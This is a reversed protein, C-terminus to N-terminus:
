THTSCLGLRSFPEPSSPGDSWDEKRFLPLGDSVLPVVKGSNDAGYYAACVQHQLSLDRRATASLTVFEGAHLAAGCAKMWPMLVSYCPVTCDSLM